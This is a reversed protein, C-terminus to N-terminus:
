YQLLNPATPSKEIWQEGRENLELINIPGGVFDPYKSIGEQIIWKSKAIPDLAMEKESPMCDNLFSTNGIARWFCEEKGTFKTTDTKWTDLTVQINQGDTIRYELLYVTPIHHVRTVIVIEGGWNCYQLLQNYFSTSAKKLKVLYAKLDAVLTSAINKVAQDLNSNNLLVKNLVTHINFSQDANSNIGSVAYYYNNAKYIKDMTGKEIIGDENIVTERSDAALLLNRNTIVLVLITAYLPEITYVM